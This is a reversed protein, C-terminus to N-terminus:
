KGAIQEPGGSIIANARAKLQESEPKQGLYYLVYAYRQLYPVLNISDPGQAQEAFQMAQQLLPAATDYKKEDAYLNGLAYVARAQQSEKSPDESNKWLNQARVYLEEAQQSKGEKIYCKALEDLRAYVHPDDPDLVKETIRLSDTLYSEADRMENKALNLNGLRDYSNALSIHQKGFVTSKLDLAANFYREATAFNEHKRYLDGLEDLVVACEVLKDRAIPAATGAWGQLPADKSLKVTTKTLSSPDRLKGEVLSLLDESLPDAKNMQDFNVYFTVLSAMAPVLEGFEGSFIQEKISLEEELYPEAKGYDGRITYLQGLAGLSNATRLDRSGTKEALSLAQLLTPEAIWYQNADLAETGRQELQTWKDQPQPVNMAFGYSTSGALMTFVIFLKACSHWATNIKYHERQVM